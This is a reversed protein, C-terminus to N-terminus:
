DRQHSYMRAWIEGYTPAKDCQSPTEIIKNKFNDYDLTEALTAMVKEVVSEKVIVRHRYDSEDWTLIEAEVESAAILNELDERIRARVHCKGESKRVISFFGYKSAVWM